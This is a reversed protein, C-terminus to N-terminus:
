DLMEALLSMTDLRPFWTQLAKELPPAVEEKSLYGILLSGTSPSAGVETIGKIAALKAELDRALDSDFQLSKIRFRIRGPLSHIVEIGCEKPSLLPARPPAPAPRSVPRAPKKATGPAPQPNQPTTVKAAAPAKQRSAPKKTTGTKSRSRPSELAKAPSKKPRSPASAAGGGLDDVIQRAEALIKIVKGSDASPKGSQKGKKPRTNM